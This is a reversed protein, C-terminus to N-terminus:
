TKKLRERLTRAKDADAISQASRTNARDYAHSAIEAKESKLLLSDPPEPPPDTSRRGGRSTKRRDPRGAARREPQTPISM